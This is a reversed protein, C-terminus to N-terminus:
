MNRETRCAGETIGARARPKSRGVANYVLENPSSWTLVRHTPHSLHPARPVRKIATFPGVSSHTGLDRTSVANTLITTCPASNVSSSSLEPPCTSPLPSPTHPDAVKTSIAVCNEEALPLGHRSVALHVEGGGSMRILQAAHRSNQVPTSNVSVVIDGASPLPREAPRLTDGM